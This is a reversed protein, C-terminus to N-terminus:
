ADVHFYDYRHHRADAHRLAYHLPLSFRYDIVIARTISFTIEISIGLAFYIDAGAAVRRLTIAFHFLM